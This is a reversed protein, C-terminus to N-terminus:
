ESKNETIPTIVCEQELFEDLIDFFADVQNEPEVGQNELYMRVLVPWSCTSQKRLKGSIFWDRFSTMYDGGAMIDMGSIFSTIESLTNGAIYMGSRKRFKKLNEFFTM